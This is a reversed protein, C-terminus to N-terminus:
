RSFKKTHKPDQLNIQHFLRNSRSKTCDKRIKITIAVNTISSFLSLWLGWLVGELTIGVSVFLYAIFILFGILCILSAITQFLHSHNGFLAFIGVISFVFSLSFILGIISSWKFEIDTISILFLCYGSISNETPQKLFSHIKYLFNKNGDISVITDLHNESCEFDTTTDTKNIILPKDPHLKGNVQNTSDSIRISDQIGKERAKIKTDSPGVCHPLLIFPLFFSIFFFIRNTIFLIRM